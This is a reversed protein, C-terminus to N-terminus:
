RRCSRGHRWLRVRRAIAGLLKQPDGRVEEQTREQGLRRVRPGGLEAVGGPAARLVPERREEVHVEVDDPLVALPCPGPLGPPHGLRRQLRQALAAPQEEGPTARRAPQADLEIRDPAREPLVPPRAAARLRRGVAPLISRAAHHGATVVGQDLRDLPELVERREAASLDGVQAKGRAVRDERDGFPALCREHDARGPLADFRARAHEEDVVVRVLHQALVDPAAALHDVVRPDLLHVQRRARHRDGPGRPHLRRADFQQRHDRHELDHQAFQEAGVRPQFRPHAAGGVRRRLHAGRQVAEVRRQGTLAHAAREGPQDLDLLPDVAAAGARGVERVRHSHVDQGVGGLATRREARRRKALATVGVRGLGPREQERRHVVGLRRPRREQLRGGCVM